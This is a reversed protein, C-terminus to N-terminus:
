TSDASKTLRDVVNQPLAWVPNIANFDGKGMLSLGATGFFTHYIDAMDEPRDSIGGDDVDQCSLIFAELADKDIWNMRDLAHLGSLVWWSYCVDQLKEPRGNLGGCPLQREALWWCVAEADILDKRNALCLAAIGCFIQGAHSEAGPVTGFGGDFNRCKGVHEAIKNVDVDSARGLINLALLVSYSFRSDIELGWQDGKVSGDELCMSVLFETVKDVDIKDICNFLTLIQIAALTNTLDPDHSVNAGFGGNEAQCSLVFKVMAEKDAVDEKGLLFLTSLSWYMAQMRLHETLFWEPTGESHFLLNKVFELHKERLYDSSNKAAGDGKAAEAM